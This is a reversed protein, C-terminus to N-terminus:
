FPHSPPHLPTFPDSPSHLPTLLPTLLPPIMFPIYLLIFMVNIVQLHDHYPGHKERSIVLCPHVCLLKLYLLAKLPHLASPPKSVTSKLHYPPTNATDTDANGTHIPSFSSSSSSSSSSSAALPLALATVHNSQKVDANENENIQGNKMTSSATSDETLGGQNSKIKRLESELVDDSIRLGANFFILTYYFPIHSSYIYLHIFLLIFLSFILYIFKSM